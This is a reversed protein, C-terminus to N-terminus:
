QKVFQKDADFTIIRWNKMSFINWKTQPPSSYNQDQPGSVNNTNKCNFLFLGKFIALYFM